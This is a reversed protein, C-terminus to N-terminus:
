SVELSEEIALAKKVLATLSLLLPVGVAAFPKVTISDTAQTCMISFDELNSGSLIIKGEPDALARFFAFFSNGRYGAQKLERDLHELHRFGTTIFCCGIGPVEFRCGHCLSFDIRGQIRCGRKDPAEDIGILLSM